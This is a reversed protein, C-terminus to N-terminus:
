GEPFFVQVGIGYKERVADMVQYTEEPLRGTDLTFVKLDKELRAGMDVLVMDEAGFSCSLIMSVGFKGFAWKVLAEADKEAFEQNLKKIEADNM